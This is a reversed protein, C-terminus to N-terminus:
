IIDNKVLDNRYENVIDCFGIGKKRVKFKRNGKGTWIKNQDSKMQYDVYKISFSKLIKDHLLEDFIQQDNYWELSKINQVKQFKDKILYRVNSNASLGLCGGLAGTGKTRVAVWDYLLDNELETKTIQKVVISDVDLCLVPASDEFIDTIRIFRCNVWFGKKDDLTLLHEPTKEFSYSVSHAECWKKEYETMDFVHCHLNIQPAFKKASLIFIKTWQNFYAVDSPLYITLDSIKKNINFM